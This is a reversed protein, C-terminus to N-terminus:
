RFVSIFVETPVKVTIDFPLSNVFERSKMDKIEDIVEAIFIM